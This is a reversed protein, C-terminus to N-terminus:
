LRRAKIRLQAAMSETARSNRRWQGASTGASAEFRSVSMATEIFQPGKKHADKYCSDQM